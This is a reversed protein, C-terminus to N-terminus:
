SRWVMDGGALLGSDPHSLAALDISQGQLVVQNAASLILPITTSDHAAIANSALLNLNGGARLQGQLNLDRGALTLDQGTQLTGHTAIAGQTPLWSDLGLPSNITVLPPATPNTASFAFGDPFLVSNATTAVFSRNVDLQANPGFVIGNPNILFLNANGLVGLTGDIDSRSRGTVRSIINTIRDPNSFYVRQGTGVNFESFSHFLNGGRIAGGDIRDILGRDTTINGRVLSREHGLTADPVIQALTQPAFGFHIGLTGGAIITKFVGFWMRKQDM